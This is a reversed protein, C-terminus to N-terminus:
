RSAPDWLSPVHKYFPTYAAGHQLMNATNLSDGGLDVALFILINIVILAVTVPEKKLEEM